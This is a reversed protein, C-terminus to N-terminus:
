VLPKTRIQSMVGMRIGTRTKKLMYVTTTTM